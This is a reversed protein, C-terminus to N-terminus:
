SQVVLSPVRCIDAVAACPWQNTSLRVFSSSFATPLLVADLRDRRLSGYLTGEGGLFLDAQYAKWFEPSTNNYGMALSSEWIKIDRRPYQEQKFDKTFAALLKLNSINHPNYTLESFYTALNVVFDSNLM